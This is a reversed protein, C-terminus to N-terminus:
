SKTSISPRTKKCIREAVKKYELFIEPSIVLTFKRDQWAELIKAPPGSFFIGSILVNTDLIVKM